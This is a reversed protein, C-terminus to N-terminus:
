FAGDRRVCTTNGQVGINNEDGMGCAYGGGGGHWIQAVGTKNTYFEACTVNTCPVKVCDRYLIVLLYTLKYRGGHQSLGQLMMM